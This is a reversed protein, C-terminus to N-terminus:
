LCQFIRLILRFNEPRKSLRRSSAKSRFGPQRNVARELYLISHWSTPNPETSRRIMFNVFFHIGNISNEIYLQKRNMLFYSRIMNFSWSFSNIYLIILFHLDVIRKFNKLFSIKLPSFHFNQFFWLNLLFNITSAKQVHREVPFWTSPKGRAKTLISHWSTPSKETSRAIM